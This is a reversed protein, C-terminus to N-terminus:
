DFKKIWEVISGAASKLFDQTRPDTVNGQEDLMHEVQGLYLEPQQMMYINLFTAVQRLHHNAGFGGIGGISASIIAGPKESFINQGYPRSGIDLANKLVAPISRNYEPTMLLFGNLESCEKRFRVWTEPVNGFEDFDQNYFPLDGIEILKCEIEEPFVSMMHNAIKKTYSADRLSGVLIGIKYTKM